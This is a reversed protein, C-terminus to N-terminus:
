AYYNVNRGTMAERPLTMSEIGYVKDYLLGMKRGPIEYGIFEVKDGIRLAKYLARAVNGTFAAMIDDGNVNIRCIAQFPSECAIEMTSSIVGTLVFKPYTM